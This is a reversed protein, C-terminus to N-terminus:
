GLQADVATPDLARLRLERKQRAASNLYLYALGAFEVTGVIMEPVMGSRPRTLFPQILVDLLDFAGLVVWLVGLRRSLKPKSTMRWWARPALYNENTGRFVRTGTWLLAADIVLGLLLPVVHGPQLLGVLRIIGNAFVLGVAIFSLKFYWASIRWPHFTV